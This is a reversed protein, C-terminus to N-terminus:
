FCKNSRCFLDWKLVLNGFLFVCKSCCLHLTANQPECYIQQRKKKTRRKKKVSTLCIMTKKIRYMFYYRLDARKLEELFMNKLYKMKLLSEFKAVLM